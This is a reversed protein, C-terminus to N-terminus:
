TKEGCNYSPLIINSKIFKVTKKISLADEKVYVIM